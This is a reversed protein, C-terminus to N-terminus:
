CIRYKKALSFRGFDQIREDFRIIGVKKKDSTIKRPGDIM